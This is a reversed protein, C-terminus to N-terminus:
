TNGTCTFHLSIEAPVDYSPPAHNVVYGAQASSCGHFPLNESVFKVLTVVARIVSSKLVNLSCVKSFLPSNSGRILLELKDRFPDLSHRHSLTNENSTRTTKDTMM